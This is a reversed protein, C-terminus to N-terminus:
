TDYKGAQGGSVQAERALLNGCGVNEQGRRVYTADFYNAIKSQDISAIGGNFICM